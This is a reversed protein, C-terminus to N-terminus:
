SLEAEFELVEAIDEVCRVTCTLIYSSEGIETNISKRLIQGEPIEASIQRELRYYAIEMAEEPTHTQNVTTYESRMVTKIGVPIRVDGLTMMEVSEITDCFVGDNGAIKFVKIEKGFFIVSFGSKQPQSYIKEEYEYPIEIRFLRETVAFVRGDARMVSFSGDKSDRVGSILVDGCRVAEGSRVTADGRTVELYEIQGDRSAVINAPKTPPPADPAKVERIQVHAVTGMINISMWSIEDSEVMLRTKIRDVNLGDIRAGVSLGQESLANVVETYTVSENGSIQIDWIFDDSLSILIAAIMAGIFLGVRKRYRCIMPPLGRSGIIKLGIGNQRCIRRVALSSYSSCRFSIFDGDVAHFSRYAIGYEMFLNLMRAGDKMDVAFENEGFLLYMVSGRM